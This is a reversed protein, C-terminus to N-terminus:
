ASRFAEHLRGRSGVSHNESASPRAVTLDDRVAHAKGSQPTIRM